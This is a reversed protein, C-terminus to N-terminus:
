RLPASPLGEFNESFPALAVPTRTSSQWASASSNKPFVSFACAQFKSSIYVFARLNKKRTKKKSSFFPGSAMSRDGEKRFLSYPLNVELCIIGRVSLPFNM